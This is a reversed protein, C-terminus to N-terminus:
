LKVLRRTATRGDPLTLRLAYVGEAQQRLDLTHTLAAGKTTLTTHQVLRGLADVVTLQVAGAPAGDLTLAFEGASPNPAVSLGSGIEDALGVSNPTTVCTETSNQSQLTASEARVRYCYQTNPQVTADTYANVNETVTALTSYSTNGGVSREIVQRSENCANDQWRLDLSAATVNQTRLNTPTSPAVPRTCIDLTWSVLSGGRVNTNDVIRLVWTGTGGPGGNAAQGNFRALSGLPQYTGGAATPCPISAYPTAAQDDFNLNLNGNGPCLGMALLSTRGSPSVLYIDLDGSNPYNIVLNRVNVDEVIDCGTVIMPSNIQTASNAPLTLPLNIAAQSLCSVSATTFSFVASLPGAGCGNEAKVRWYYTTASQLSVGSIPASTGTLNTMTGIINAFAADTAIELTYFAADAVATWTFTPALAQATAADTPATLTTTGTVVPSVVLTVNQTQNITGSTANVTLTYTGPAVASTASVNLTPTAGPAVMAQSLAATVGAPAGSVALSVSDTFGAVGTVNITYAAGVNPCVTLTGPGVTLAFTPSQPAQVTFNANSIDFFFNGHAAVMVRAQSTPVTTPSLAFTATGTNPQNTAITDTWTQGGDHSLIIDVASCSVPATNTNAVDWTVTVPLGATWLASSTNPTMVVFPGATSVVNLNMTSSYNVGGVIRGLAPSVHEDRVTCRFKLQRNVQPYTEGKVPTSNNLITSLQPFYRIPTTTPNFTRFMPAAANATTQNNLTLPAGGAGLDMDEWCYTLADGDADTGTATLRFPTGKPITQGGAPITVNPPTNGTAASVACTAVNSINTQMEQFNGTHFYADSHPQLDDSGCIGAYAMISSGSGPEWATSANRNGGGCSVQTGNFPHNGGFQHGMEHAVYDIDFADGTPSPSGTVGQAKQGSRCVVGLGAIGGGGTSFVHGIDYNANGILQDVRSQNQGLMTGGNNNSYTSTSTAILVNTNAILVLRVALEKEYVGTVRNISTTMSALASAPTGGRANVYEKTAALALDYTRLTTGVAVQVRNATPAGNSLTEAAGTGQLAGAPDATPVYGCAQRGGRAARNMDKRFFSVYHTVDNISVPDIYITGTRSSLIQAHFGLPTLDCRLAASPDDLGYGAYTKIQPYQAALAPAMVPAEVIRFRGTTGDPLPLTLITGTGRAAAASGELPATALVPRLAALDLRVPRYHYLWTSYESAAVTRQTAADEHWMASLAAGPRQQAHAAALPLALSLGLLALQRRFGSYFVSMFRFYFPHHHSESGAAVAYM